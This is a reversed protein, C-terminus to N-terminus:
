HDPVGDLGGRAALVFGTVELGWIRFGYLLTLSVWIFHFPITEWSPWFAMAALNALAFAGWGVELLSLRGSGTVRM